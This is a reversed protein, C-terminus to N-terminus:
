FKPEAALIEDGNQFWFPKQKLYCIIAIGLAMKKYTM